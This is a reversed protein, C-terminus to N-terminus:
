DGAILLSQHHQAIMPGVISAHVEGQGIHTGPGIISHNVSAQQELAANDMLFVHNARASSSISSGPQLVGNTISGGTEIFSPQCSIWGQENTIRSLLMANNVSLANSIRCSYDLLLNGADRCFEVLAHSGIISWGSLIGPLDPCSPRLIELEALDDLTLGPALLYEFPSIENLLKLQSGVGFHSKARPNTITSGILQAHPEIFTSSILTCDLVTAHQGIFCDQLRSNEIRGVPYKLSAECTPKAYKYWGGFDLWVSGSFSTRLIAGEPVEGYVLVQSWNDSSCGGSCLRDIESGSLQRFGANGSQLAEIANAAQQCHEEFLLSKKM